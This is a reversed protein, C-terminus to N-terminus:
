DVDKMLREKWEENTLKDETYINTLSGYEELLCCAEDLTKQYKILDKQCEKLHYQLREYEKLPVFENQRTRDSLKIGLICYGNEIGAFDEIKYVIKVVLWAGTYRSTKEDFECLILIDGVQYDCDNKRIEFTKNGNWVDDFYPQILKKNHTKM